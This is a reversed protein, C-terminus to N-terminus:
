IGDREIVSSEEIGKLEEIFDAKRSPPLSVRLRVNQGYSADSVEGEYKRLIAEIQGTVRHSHEITLPELVREQIIKGQDLANEAATRYADILGRKGLKTGGFYRVVTLLVNTIGYSRIANMIPRGATGGPEGDDNERQPEAEVGIRYAYCHHSADPYQERIEELKEEAEKQDAVPIAFAFFKSGKERYQGETRKQITHYSEKMRRFLTQEQM